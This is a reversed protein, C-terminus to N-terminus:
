KLLLMSKRDEGSPGSLQYFYVGSSVRQGAGDRGNWVVRQEGAPLQAADLLVAVERGLIDFIRLDVPGAEALGFRITTRPNFPNPHNQALFFGPTPPAGATLTCGLGQAGVQVACDNNEPLCPSEEALSYVAGALDCYLPDAFFNDGVPETAYGGYPEGHNEFIDSCSWTASSAADEAHAVAGDGAENYTVLFATGTLETGFAMGLAGGRQSRNGTLTIRDLQFAGGSLYIGGGSETADNDAVLIRDFGPSGGYVALGGGNGYAQKYAANRRLIVNSVQSQSEGLAMGGGAKAARCDEIVLNRLTPSAGSVRIGGGSSSEFEYWVHGNRITFGEVLANPSEGNEFNFARAAQECDIITQEAGAEGILVIDRGGFDLRKNGGGTYVGAAVIVTDGGLSADLASQIDPFEVPVRRLTQRGALYDQDLQDAIVNEYTRRVPDFTFGERVPTLIASWLMPVRVQYSGDVASRIDYFHGALMVDAVPSGDAEAILGEILLHALDCGEGLDGIQLGCGNGAPLCPSDADLHLDRGEPDCFLPDVSLNGNQGTVDIAEGLFNDIANGFVNSCSLDALAGSECDIGGAENFVLLSADIDLQAGQRAMLGGGSEGCDNFALTSGILELSGGVCAIGGGAGGATNDHIRVDELRPASASLCLIGAGDGLSSNNRIVVDQILPSANICVLGGGGQGLSQNGAITLDRLTPSANICAVGGGVADVGGLITFGSLVTDGTEGSVFLFGRSGGECDIFTISQGAESLITVARGGPNLNRNGEGRYFGPAVLVTDGDAAVDLAEQITEFEGPVEHVQMNGSCAQGYRGMLLGCSNGAPLCPSDEHIGYPQDPTTSGCFIPDASINGDAGTADSLAGAYDAGGNNFLDSCAIILQAGSEGHLGDPLNLSILSSDVTLQTTPGLHLAGGAREASGDVLTCGTIHVQGVGALSLFGGHGGEDPSSGLASAFNGEALIRTLLLDGGSVHVAGGDGGEEQGGEAPFPYASNNSFLCDEFQPQGGAVYVAGGWAANNLVFECNLFHPTSDDLLAVAGGQLHANSEFRCNEVSPASSGECLLGGGGPGTQWNGYNEAILLNELRPSSLGRCIVATVAGRLTLDTVLTTADEGTQFRFITEAGGDLSSDSGPMGRFVLNKGAPDLNRNDAGSFDGVLLLTDGEAAADIHIQIGDGVGAFITFTAAVAPM